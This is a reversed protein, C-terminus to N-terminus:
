GSVEICEREDDWDEYFREDKNLRKKGRSLKHLMEPLLNDQLREEEILEISRLEKYMKMLGPYKLRCIGIGAYGM